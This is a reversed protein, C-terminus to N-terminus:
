LLVLDQQQGYDPDQKKLNRFHCLDCQFPTMLHDGNRARVFEVEQCGMEGEVLELGPAEEEAEQDEHLQEM